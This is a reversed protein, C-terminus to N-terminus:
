KREKEQLNNQNTQEQTHRQGVPVETREAEESTKSDWKVVLEYLEYNFFCHHWGDVTEDAPVPRYVYSNQLCVFNNLQIQQQRCEM